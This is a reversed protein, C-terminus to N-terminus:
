YFLGQDFKITDADTYYFNQGYRPHMTQLSFEPMTEQIQRYKATFKNELEKYYIATEPSTESLYRPNLRMALKISLFDDFEFPFPSDDDLSLSSVKKWDGLDARYFWQDNASDTNLVVSSSSEILRGNGNITVNNTSFNGAIDVVAFREGDVPSPNLFVTKAEGINCMLRYNPSVYSNVIFPSKDKEKAFSNTLGEKGFSVPIFPSGLEFGYLAEILNKLLDFGESEQEASPSSGIQIIGSERYANKVIKRLTAM